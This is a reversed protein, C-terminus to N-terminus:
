VHLLPMTYIKECMEGELCFTVMKRLVLRLDCTIHKTERRSLKWMNLSKSSCPHTFLPKEIKLTMGSIKIDTGTHLSYMETIQMINGNKLLVTNNGANLALIAEKYRLKTINIKGDARQCKKSLIEM